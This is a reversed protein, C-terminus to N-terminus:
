PWSAPTSAVTSASTPGRLAPWRGACRRPRGSSTAAPQPCASCPCDRHRAPPPPCVCLCARVNPVSEGGVCGLSLWWLSPGRPARGLATSTKYRDSRSHHWAGCCRTGWPLPTSPCAPTTPWACCCTPPWRPWQAPWRRCGGGCGGRCGGWRTRGRGWRQGRGGGPRRCPEPPPCVRSSM